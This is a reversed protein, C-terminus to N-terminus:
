LARYVATEFTGLLDVATDDFFPLLQSAFVACVRRTRDIWFYTNALGAWTLSNASRGGPV